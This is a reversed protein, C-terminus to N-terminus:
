TNSISSDKNSIKMEVKKLKSNQIEASIDQTIGLIYGSCELKTIQKGGKSM